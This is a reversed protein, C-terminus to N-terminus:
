VVQRTFLLHLTSVQRGAMDLLGHQRHGVQRLVRRLRKSYMQGGQEWPEQQFICIVFVVIPVEGVVLRIQAYKRSIRARATARGAQLESKALSTMVTPEPKLNFTPVSTPCCSEMDGSHM